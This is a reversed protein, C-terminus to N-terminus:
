LKAAARQMRKMTYWNNSKVKLLLLKRFLKSRGKLLESYQRVALLNYFFLGVPKVSYYFAISTLPGMGNKARICDKWSYNRTYIEPLDLPFLGEEKMRRMGERKWKRPLAQLKQVCGRTQIVLGQASPFSAAGNEQIDQEYEDRFTQPFALYNEIRKECAKDSFDYVSQGRHKRYFYYPSENLFHEKIGVRKCEAIFFSDTGYGARREGFRKSKPWLEHELLYARDFVSCWVVWDYHSGCNPKLLNRSRLLKEADSLAEVFQYYNFYLRQCRTKLLIERFHELCNERILDDQDVFWLYDGKALSLGVNRTAGVNHDKFEQRINSYREMYQRVIEPTQDSSGDDLCLIEYDEPPIDQHLCSDLCEAIYKEGNYTPIVISLFM